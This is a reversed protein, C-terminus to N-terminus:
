RSRSLPSLSTAVLATAVLAGLLRVRSRTTKEPNNKNKTEVSM